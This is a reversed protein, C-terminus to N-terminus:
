GPTTEGVWWPAKLVLPLYVQRLVTGSVFYHESGMPPAVEAQLAVGANLAYSASQM